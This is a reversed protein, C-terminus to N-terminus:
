RSPSATVDRAPGPDRDVVAQKPTPTRGLHRFGPLVLMSAPVILNVTALILLTSRLGIEGLLSGYIVMGLPLTGAGVAAIAGFVRGRMGTPVREQLITMSLPNVPELFLANVVISVVVIGLSPTVILVWFCLARVAFGGILIARRSIRNKLLLFLVNGALSGVALAAFMIGLDLATGYVERAFVPLVVPYLPEALLSGAAFTLTLALVVPDRRIFRFGALVDNLYRNSTSDAGADPGRLLAPVAVAVIGASIVFSAANLWLLNGAGITAILVGAIPPGVLGASRLVIQYIANARDLPIGAAIALDPYISRRATIGPADLLAGAFVLTLLQWFAVGTTAHLLPILLVAVSSAIDAIVSIRKPGFRDVFAGGFVGTVIVPLAGTAVTIGTKAPSGTSVLVFWPIALYSLINGTQSIATACLLGYFPRHHRSRAIV